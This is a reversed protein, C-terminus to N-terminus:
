SKNTMRTLIFGHYMTLACNGCSAVALSIDLLSNALYILTLWLHFERWGAPKKITKCCWVKNAHSASACLTLFFHHDWEGGMDREESSLTLGHLDGYFCSVSAPQGTLFCSVAQVTCWWARPMFTHPVPTVLHSMRSHLQGGCCKSNVARKENAASSMTVCVTVASTNRLEYNYM